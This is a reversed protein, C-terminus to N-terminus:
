LLAATNLCAGAAARYQPMFLGRELTVDRDIEPTAGGLLLTSERDPDLDAM